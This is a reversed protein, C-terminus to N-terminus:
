QELCDKIMTTMKNRLDCAPDIEHVEIQMESHYGRRTYIGRYGKVYGWEDIKKLADERTSFLYITKEGYDDAQSYNESSILIMM